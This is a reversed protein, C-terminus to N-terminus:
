VAPVHAGVEIRPEFKPEAALARSVLCLSKAKELLHLGRYRQEEHAITLNPRIVIEDFVYGSATKVVSGEAEVELDTYDFKSYEAVAYFTTTFCSALASLLLDEPTWRGELGGFGPPASFHIACPASDTQSIGTRDATWWAVSRFKYQTPLIGTNKGALETKM